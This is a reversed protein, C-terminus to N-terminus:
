QIGAGTPLSIKDCGSPMRKAIGTHILQIDGATFPLPSYGMTRYDEKTWEAKMVGSESHRAIGQLMHTVEHVMVHALVQAAHPYTRVRGYFITIASSADQYPFAYALAEPHLGPPTSQVLDVSLAPACSPGPTRSPGTQWITRIGASRLMAEAGLQARNLLLADAFHAGHLHIVILHVPRDGAVAPMGALMSIGLLATRM